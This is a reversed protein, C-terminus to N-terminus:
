FHGREGGGPFDSRSKISVNVKLKKKQLGESSKLILQCGSFEVNEEMHFSIKAHVNSKALLNQLYSDYNVTYKYNNCIVNLRGLQFDGSM